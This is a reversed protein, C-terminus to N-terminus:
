SRAHGTDLEDDSDGVNFMPEREEEPYGNEVERAKGKAGQQASYPDRGDDEDAHGNHGSTLPISEEAGDKQPLRM